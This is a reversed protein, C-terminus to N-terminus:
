CDINTKIKRMILHALASSISGALAIIVGFKYYPYNQLSNSQHISWFISAPSTLIVVGLIAVGVSVYQM